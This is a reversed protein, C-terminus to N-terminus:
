KLEAATLPQGELSVSVNFDLLSDAGLRDGGAEGIRVRVQPRPPRGAKWWDPIRVVVGSQEFMPIDKLFAFAQEPRWVQPHFVARSDLLERALKSQAGARQVPSLLASLAARNKAGAYEELARGLPVHQVKGQESIRHTYTALFAFPYAPNRKNEALHFTVRGVANWTPNCNKLYAAVGGATQAIRSRTHVELEDWFRALVAGNLYELGKMPPATEALVIWENEGPRAVSVDAVNNPNHCLATFYRRALGRLFNFTPPLPEHLFESALLELGRAGSAAFAEALRAATSPNLKPEAQDDPEVSLHGGPSLALAHSVGAFIGPERSAGLSFSRILLKRGPEPFGARIMQSM